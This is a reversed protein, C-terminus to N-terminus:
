LKKAKASGTRDTSSTATSMAGISVSSAEFNGQQVIIGSNVITQRDDDFDRTSIHHQELFDRLADLVVREMVRFLLTASEVEVHSMSKDGAISERFSRFCGFNPRLNSNLSAGASKWARWDQYRANRRLIANSDESPPTEWEPHPYAWDHSAQQLAHLGCSDQVFLAPAGLGRLVNRDARRGSATSIRWRDDIPLVLLRHAEITLLSGLRALRIAQSVILGDRAVRAVLYCRGISDTDARLWRNALEEGIGPSQAGYVHPALEPVESVLAGDVFFRLRVESPAPLAGELRGTLFEYLESQTFARCKTESAVVTQSPRSTDVLIKWDSIEHGFGSFIRQPGHICLPWRQSEQDPLHPWEQGGLVKKIREPDFCEIWFMPVLEDNVHRQLRREYVLATGVGAFVVLALWGFGFSPNSRDVTNRTSNSDDGFAQIDEGDQDVHAHASEVDPSGSSLRSGGIANAAIWLLTIAAVLVLTAAM